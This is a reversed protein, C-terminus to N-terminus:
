KSTNTTNSVAAGPKELEEVKIPTVQLIPVELERIGPQPLAAAVTAPIPLRRSNQAYALAMREQESLPAPAPFTEHKAAPVDSSGSEAPETTQFGPALKIAPGPGFASGFMGALRETSARFAEQPIRAPLPATTAEVPTGATVDISDSQGVYVTDEGPRTVLFMGLAIGAVLVVATVAGALRQAAFPEAPDVGLWSGVKAAVRSGFGPEPQQAADELRALIREELGALPAVQAYQALSQDLIQDVKDPAQRSEPTSDTTSDNMLNNVPDKM